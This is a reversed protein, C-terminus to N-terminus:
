LGAEEFVAKNDLVYQRVMFMDYLAGLAGVVGGVILNIVLSIIINTMWKDYTNVIGKWPELVAKSQQFRTYASYINWAGAIIAVFSLCQLIGIILWIIASTKERESLNKTVNQLKESM